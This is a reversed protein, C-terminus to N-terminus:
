RCDLLTDVEKPAGHEAIWSIIEDKFRSNMRLAIRDNGEVNAVERAGLTEANSDLCGM